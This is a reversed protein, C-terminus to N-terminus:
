MLFSQVDFCLSHFLFIKHRSKHSEIFLLHFHLHTLCHNNLYFSHVWMLFLSIADLRTNLNSNLVRSSFHRTSNFKKQFLTSDFQSTSSSFELRTSFSSEVIRNSLEVRSSLINSLHLYSSWVTKMMFVEHNEDHSEISCEELYHLFIICL